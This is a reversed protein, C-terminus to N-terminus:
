KSSGDDGDLGIHEEHVLRARGEIGDGRSADFVQRSAQGVSVGDDDYGV